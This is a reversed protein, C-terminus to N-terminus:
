ARVESALALAVALMFLWRAAQVQAERAPSRLELAAAVALWIWWAALLMPRVDAATALVLLAGLAAGLLAPAAVAADLALGWHPQSLPLPLGAVLLPRLELAALTRARSVAVLALLSLATLWWAAWDPRRAVAVLVLAVGALTAGGHWALRRAPGRAMPWWLLVRAPSTRAGPASRLEGRRTRLRPQGMRRRLGQLGVGGVLMLVVTAAGVPGLVWERGLLWAPEQLAWVALGAIQLAVWPLAALVIWPLDSRQQEHRSLPLAREAEAWAAPWILQRLALLLLVGVGATALMAALTTWTGAAVARALPLAAWAALALVSALASDLGAGAGALLAAVLAFVAWRGLWRRLAQRCAAAHVRRYTWRRPALLATQPPTM